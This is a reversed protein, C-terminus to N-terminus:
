RVWCRAQTTSSTSGPSWRTSGRRGPPPPRRQARGTRRSGLLEAAGGGRRRLRAAHLRHGGGAVVPGGRRDRALRLRGRRGRLLRVAGVQETLRDGLLRVLGSAVLYPLTALAVLEEPADFVDDLYVPGWTAAATDVTYFVVLALGIMVIARWPVDTETTTAAVGHDRALYPAAAAVLPLVAVLAIASWPVDTTALTLVAGIVGGLTWAGHCSPLIVRGMRHELAVAQM